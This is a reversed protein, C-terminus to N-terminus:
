YARNSGETCRGYRLVGDLAKLKGVGCYGFSGVGDIKDKETAKPSVFRLSSGTESIWMKFFRCDDILVGGVGWFLGQRKKLFGGARRLAAFFPARKGYPM